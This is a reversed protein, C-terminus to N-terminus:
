SPKHMLLAFSIARAGACHTPAHAGDCVMMLNRCAWIYQQRGPSIAYLQWSWSSGRFYKRTADVVYGVRWDNGQADRSVEETSGDHTDFVANHQTLCINDCEIVPPGVFGLPVCIKVVWDFARPPVCALNWQWCRELVKTLSQLFVLLFSYQWKFRVSVTAAAPLARQCLELLRPRTRGVMLARYGWIGTCLAHGNPKCCWHRLQKLSLSRVLHLQCTPMAFPACLEKGGPARWCHRTSHSLRQSWSPCRRCSAM